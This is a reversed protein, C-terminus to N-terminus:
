FAIMFIGIFYSHPEDVKNELYVIKLRLFGGHQVDNNGYSRGNLFKELSKGVVKKSNCAM